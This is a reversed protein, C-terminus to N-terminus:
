AIVGAPARPAPAARRVFQWVPVWERPREIGVAAQLLEDHPRLAQAQVCLLCACLMPTPPSVKVPSFGAKYRGSEVIECGDHGHSSDADDHGHHDATTGADHCVGQCAVVGAETVAEIACHLTVPLWLAALVLALTLRIRHVRVDNAALGM